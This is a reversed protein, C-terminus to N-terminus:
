HSIMVQNNATKGGCLVRSGLGDSFWDWLTQEKEMRDLEEMVPLPENRGMWDERVLAARDRGIMGLTRGGWAVPWRALATSKAAVLAPMM